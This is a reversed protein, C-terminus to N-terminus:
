SQRNSNKCTCNIRVKWLSREDDQFANFYVFLLEQFDTDTYRRLGIVVQIGESYVPCWYGTSAFSRSVHM